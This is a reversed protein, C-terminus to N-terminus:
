FIKAGELNQILVPLPSRTLVSPDDTIKNDYFEKSPFYRIHPHMRYQVTLMHVNFGNDALREFLSRSFRTRESNESMTTAPLQKQDGVMVVRKAGLSFPILSSPETSQCAEDIILYEFKDKMIELKDIGSMSLTTCVIRANKIIGEEVERWDTQTNQNMM